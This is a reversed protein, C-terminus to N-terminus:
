AQIPRALALGAGGGELLMLTCPFLGRGTPLAHSDTPRDTRPSNNNAVCVSQRERNGKKEREGDVTVRGGEDGRGMEGRGGEQISLM